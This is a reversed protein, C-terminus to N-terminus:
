KYPKTEHLMEGWVLCLIFRLPMKNFVFCIVDVMKAASPNKTGYKQKDWDLNSLISSSCPWNCSDCVCNSWNTATIRRFIYTCSHTLRANSDIFRTLCINTYVYVYNPSVCGSFTNREWQMGCTTLWSGITSLVVYNRRQIISPPPRQWQRAGFVLSLTRKM